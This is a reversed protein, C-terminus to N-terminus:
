SQPYVFIRRGATAEDLQQLREYDEIVIERRRVSIVSERELELLQRTVAERAAGIQDGLEAHTPAASLTIRGNIREGRVAMRMLEALLRGRVDLTALEYFRSSLELQIACAAECAARCLSPSEMLLARFDSQKMLALTTADDAVLRTVHHVLDGGWSHNLVAAPLGLSDGLRLTRMTINAGNPALAVLRCAGELVFGVRQPFDTDAMVHARARFSRVECKGVVANLQHETLSKLLPVRRFEEIGAVPREAKAARQTSNSKLIIEHSKPQQVHEGLCDFRRLFNYTIIM